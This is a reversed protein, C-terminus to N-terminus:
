DDARGVPAEGGEQRSGGRPGTECPPGEPEDRVQQRQREEGGWPGRPQGAATVAELPDAGPDDVQRDEREGDHLERHPAAPWADVVEVVVPRVDGEVRDEENGAEKERRM